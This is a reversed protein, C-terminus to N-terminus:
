AARTRAKPVPRRHIAWLGIAGAVVMGIGIWQSTSFPGVGGRVADGRFMEVVTRVVGYGGMWLFALVGRRPRTAVVGHLALALLGTGLMEYLQVPHVPYDPLDAHIQRALPDTYRVAWPLDCASGFCCGSMLCGPRGITQGVLIPIASFDVTDLYAVGHRRAYAWAAVMGAILGGYVVGGTSLIGLLLRPDTLAEPRTFVHLLKAGAFGALVVVVYYDKAFEPDFGRRRAYYATLRWAVLLGTVLFAAWSWIKVPGLDLLLPHM